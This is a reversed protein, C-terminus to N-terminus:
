VKSNDEDAVGDAADAPHGATEKRGANDSLKEAKPAAPKLEVTGTKKLPVL